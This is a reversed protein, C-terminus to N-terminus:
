MCTITENMDNESSLPMIKENMLFPTKWGRYCASSLFSSTSDKLVQCGMKVPTFVSDKIGSRKKLQKLFLLLVM